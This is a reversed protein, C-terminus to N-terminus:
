WAVAMVLQVLLYERRSSNMSGRDNARDTVDLAIKSDVAAAGRVLNKKM